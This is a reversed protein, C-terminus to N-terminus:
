LVRFGLRGGFGRFEVFAGLVVVRIGGACGRAAWLRDLVTGMPEEAATPELRYLFSCKTYPRPLTQLLRQISVHTSEYAWQKLEVVRLRDKGRQM